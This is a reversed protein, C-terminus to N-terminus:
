AKWSRSQRVRRRLDTAAKKSYSAQVVHHIMSGTGCERYVQLRLRVTTDDLMYEYRFVRGAQLVERVAVAAANEGTEVGDADFEYRRRQIIFASRRCPASEMWEKRLFWDLDALPAELEIEAHMWHLPKKEHDISILLVRPADPHLGAIERAM